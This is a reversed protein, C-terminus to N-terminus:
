IREDELSILKKYDFIEDSHLDMAARFFDNIRSDIPYGKYIDSFSIYNQFPPYDTNIFVNQEVYSRNLVEIDKLTIEEYILGRRIEKPIAIFMIHDNERELRGMNYYEVKKAVIWYESKSMLVEKLFDINM